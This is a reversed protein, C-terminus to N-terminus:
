ETGQRDGHVKLMSRLSPACHERHGHLRWTIIRLGYRYRRDATPRSIGFRWCIAKWQAGSLRARILAADDPQLWGLWALSEIADAVLGDNGDVVASGISGIIGRSEPSRGAIINALRETKLATELAAAKRLREEVGTSTIPLKVDEACM